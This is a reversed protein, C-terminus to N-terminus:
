WLDAYQERLPLAAELTAFADEESLHRLFSRIMVSGFGDRRRADRLAAAIGAFVTAIPIGRETHTQPDFFIEAHRVNDAQA